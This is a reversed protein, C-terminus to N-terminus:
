ESLPDAENVPAAVVYIVPLVFPLNASTSGKSPVTTAKLAPTAANGPLTHEASEFRWQM